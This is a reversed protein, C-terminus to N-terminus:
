PISKSSAAIPQGLKPAAPEPPPLAPAPEGGAPMPLRIAPREVTVPFVPARRARVPRAAEPPVDGLIRIHEDPLAPPPAVDRVVPQPHEALGRLAALAREHREIPASRDRSAFHNLVVAAIVLGVVAVIVWM